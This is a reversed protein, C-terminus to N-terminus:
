TGSPNSAELLPYLKRWRNFYFLYRQEYVVKGLTEFALEHLRREMESEGQAWLEPNIRKQRLFDAFSNDM